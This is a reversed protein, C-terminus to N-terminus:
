KSFKLKRILTGGIDDGMQVGKDIAFRYHIGGYLRSIANEQKAEDFSRYYRAKFGRNVHTKDWFGRDGFLHKIITFSAAGQVSHGSTYEPFPPTNLPVTKMSTDIHATIYSIPRLLNYKYKVEWCTIFAENAAIGVMAYAQAAFTLSKGNEKIMQAIINFSHGPPTPTIGPDDSWFRAILLQESSLNKVTTYVEKVSRYFESTTDESYQPHPGPDCEALVNTPSLVFPRNKGWYPQLPIPQFAPATPVWMGPGRPVTFTSPFNKSYGEHGGDSKSYSFIANAVEKGYEISRQAMEESVGFSMKREQINRAELSSAVQKISDNATPFFNRLYQAMASNAVLAWHYRQGPEPTPVDNFGNIQGVLSRSDPSGHVVSEWLTIGAYAYARAAVPPSFGPTTKVAGMVVDMWETAVTSEYLAADNTPPYPDESVPQVCSAVLVVLLSSFLWRTILVTKARFPTCLTNSSAM